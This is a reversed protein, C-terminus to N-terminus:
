FCHTASVRQAWLARTWHPMLALLCCPWTEKTCYAAVAGRADGRFSEPFHTPPLFRFFHFHPGHAGLPGMLAWYTDTHTWIHFVTVRPYTGDWGGGGRGGDGGRLFISFRFVLKRRSGGFIPFGFIRGSGGFGDTDDSPESVSRDRGMRGCVSGQCAGDAVEQNEPIERNKELPNESKGLDM